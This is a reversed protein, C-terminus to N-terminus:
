TTMGRTVLARRPQKEGHMGHSWTSAVDITPIQRRRARVPLSAPPLLLARSARLLRTELDLATLQERHALPEVVRVVQEDKTRAGVPVRARLGVIDDDFQRQTKGASASANIGHYGPPM